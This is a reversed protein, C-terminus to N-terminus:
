AADSRRDPATRRKRADRLYRRYGAPDDRQWRRRWERELPLLEVEALGTLERGVRTLYEAACFCSFGLDMLEESLPTATTM